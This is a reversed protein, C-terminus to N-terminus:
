PVGNGEGRNAFSVEDFDTEMARGNITDGSKFPGMLSKSSLGNGPNIKGALEFTDRKEIEDMEAISARALFNGLLKDL